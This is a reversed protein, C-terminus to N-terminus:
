METILEELAKKQDKALIVGSALLVGETGLEVAKKVDEGSSIGAGCLVRVDPNVTKVAEVTNEVVEPKAKSVPIGSGILEPPEVAVFDPSLAAAAASTEVNNTCVISIMDNESLKKVVKSIDALKMRKESHNVLSGKAGAEKACELLVSGTHGGADIPDIHQAIVPINVNESVYRLDMHQPAVIIKVGYEESVQECKKALKLANEGTSEKYTKFNLVIIPRDLQLEGM